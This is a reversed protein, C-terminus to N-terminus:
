LITTGYMLAHATYYIGIFTALAGAFKVPILCVQRVSARMQADDLILALLVFLGGILGYYLAGLLTPLVFCVAFLIPLWPDSKAHTQYSRIGKRRDVFRSTRAIQRLSETIAKQRDATTLPQGEVKGIEMNM